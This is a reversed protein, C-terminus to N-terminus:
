RFLENLLGEQQAQQYFLGAALRLSSLLVKRNQLGTHDIIQQESKQQIVREEILCKIQEDTSDIDWLYRYQEALRAFIYASSEYARYHFAFGSLDHWEEHALRTFEVLVPRQVRALINSDLTQLWDGQLYLLRKQFESQWACIAQNADASLGKLVLTAYSGSVPDCQTGVRTVQYGEAHWFDLLPATVAFSAGIMHYQSNEVSREIAHLLGAAIRSRRYKDCVAIRVVRLMTFEAANLYGEQAVLLQPLLHGRPRRRGEWIHQILEEELGGEEAVLCAGVIQEASEAIWIQLNPSDLMIRLDGPTTRYHANIMLGFLAQLQDPNDVLWKPDISRYEVLPRSQRAVEEPIKSSLSGADLFLLKNIFPELPDCESWRIPKELTFCHLAKAQHQLIPFFRLVFGQGTGEYGQTTTAFIIKSYTELFGTLLHVPIGAAEDVLLINAENHASIVDVPQQFTLSARQKEEIVQYRARHFGKASAAHEFLSDLADASPATVVVSRGQGLLQRAIIGLAASKGRGRAATLVCCQQGSLAFYQAIQDIVKHQDLLGVDASVHSLSPPLRSLLGDVQDFRSLFREENFCRKMHELFYNGVQLSTYPEVRLRQKEPDDFFDSSEPPSSLFVFLGGGKLLGSVQGLTDPNIGSFGDYILLDVEQGLLRHAQHVPCTVLGEWERSSIVICCLSNNSQIFTLAQEATWEPSGTLWCPYRVNGQEAQLMLRALLAHVSDPASCYM